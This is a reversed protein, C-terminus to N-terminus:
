RSSDDSVEDSASAFAFAFADSFAKDNHGTILGMINVIGSSKLAHNISGSM